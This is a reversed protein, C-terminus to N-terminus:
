ITLWSEGNVCRPGGGAPGVEIADLVSLFVGETVRIKIHPLVIQRQSLSDYDIIPIQM